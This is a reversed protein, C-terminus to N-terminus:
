KLSDKRNKKIEITEKRFRLSDKSLSRVRKEPLSISEIEADPRKQSAEIEEKKINRKITSKSGGEQESNVVDQSKNKKVESNVIASDLEVLESKKQYGRKQIVNLSDVVISYIHDLKKSNTLYYQYSDEYLSKTVGYKDFIEKELTNYVTYSSDNNIRLKDVRAELIHIDILLEVMQSSPILKKQEVSTTCSFGVIVNILLFYKKM